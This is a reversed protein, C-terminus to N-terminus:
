YVSVDSNNHRGLAEHRFQEVMHAGREKKGMELKLLIMFSGM